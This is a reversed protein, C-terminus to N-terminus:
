VHVNIWDMDVENVIRQTGCVFIEELDNESLKGPSEIVIKMLRFKSMVRTLLPRLHWRMFGLFSKQPLMGESRETRRLM